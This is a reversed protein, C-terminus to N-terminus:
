LSWMRACPAPVAGLWGCSSLTVKLRLGGRPGREGGLGGFEQCAGAGQLVRFHWREELGLSYLLLASLFKLNKVPFFFFRGSVEFVEDWIM